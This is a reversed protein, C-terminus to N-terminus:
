QPPPTGKKLTMTAGGQGDLDIDEIWHTGEDPYPGAAPAAVLDRAKPPIPGFDALKVGLTIVRTNMVGEELQVEVNRISWVGRAQYAPQGPQSRVPTVTVPRAFTAMAPGLVLAGFDIM